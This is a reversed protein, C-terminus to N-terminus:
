QDKRGERNDEKGSLSGGEREVIRKKGHRHDEDGIQSGIARNTTREKKLDGM